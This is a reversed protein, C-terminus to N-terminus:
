PSAAPFVLWNKLWARLPSDTAPHLRVCSEALSTPTEFCSGRLAPLTRGSQKPRIIRSCREALAALSHQSAPHLLFRSRRLITAPLYLSLLVISYSCVERVMDLGM